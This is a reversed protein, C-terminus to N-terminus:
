SLTKEGTPTAITARYRLQAGRQIRPPNVVGLRQYLAAVGDPDPHEIGFDKLRAGLDPM